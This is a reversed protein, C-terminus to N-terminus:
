PPHPSRLNIVLLQLKLDTAKVVTFITIHTPTNTPTPHPLLLLPLLLLLLHTFVAHTPSDCSSTLPPAALKSCNVVFQTLSHSTNLTPDVRPSPPRPSYILDM